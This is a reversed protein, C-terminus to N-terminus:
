APVVISGILLVLSVTGTFFLLGGRRLARSRDAIITRLTARMDDLRFRSVVYSRPQMVRLAFFTAGLYGVMSIILFAKALHNGHLYPPPFKAGFATIAFLIGLLGTDLEILRKAASDLLELQGREIDRFLAALQKEEDTPVRAEIVENM